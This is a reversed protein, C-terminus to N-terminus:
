PRASLAVPVNPTLRCIDNEGKGGSAKRAQRATASLTREDVQLLGCEVEAMRLQLVEFQSQFFRRDTDSETSLGPTTTPFRAAQELRSLRNELTTFQQEIRNLRQSLFPDQQAEARPIGGFLAVFGGYFIAALGIIALGHIIVRIGSQINSKM